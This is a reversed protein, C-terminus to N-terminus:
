NSERIRMTEFYFASRRVAGETRPLTILLPTPPVNHWTVRVCQSIDGPEEILPNSGQALQLGLHLVPDFRVDTKLHVRFGQSLDRGAQSM